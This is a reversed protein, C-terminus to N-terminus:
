RWLYELKIEGIDPAPRLSALAVSAMEDFLDDSEAERPSIMSGTWGVPVPRQLELEDLQHFRAGNEVSLALNLILVLAAAVTLLRRWNTGHGGATPAAASISALVRARFVATPGAVSRRALHEELERLDPPLPEPNM